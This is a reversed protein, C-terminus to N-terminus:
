RLDYLADAAEPDSPDGDCLIGIHYEEMFAMQPPSTWPGPRFKRPYNAVHGDLFVVNASEGAHRFHVSPDAGSPTLLGGLNERLPYPFLFYVIASEAFAITRTTERVAGITRQLNRHKL